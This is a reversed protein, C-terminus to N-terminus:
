VVTGLDMREANELARVAAAVDMTAIGVSKFLTREYQRAAPSALLEAMTADPKKDAQILDGAEQAAASRDEVVVFADRIFEPPIEAMAPTYAGIANIHVRPQLASVVFLPTTSPTATTVIAADRVAEDPRDAHSGGVDDALAAAKSLDRSWVVIRAIDRVECIATIQDRAMAGAGIMAFTTADRPALMDTALGAGAGTRIATLTPGDVLGVPAGEGDFVAVVGVPNGPVTSVVKIAVHQQVRGPMIFSSGVLQRQPAETDPGFALRMADIADAMPLANRTDEATLIRM